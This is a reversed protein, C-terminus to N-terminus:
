FDYNPKQREILIDKDPEFKVAYGKEYPHHTSIMKWLTGAASCKLVADLLNNIISSRNYYDYRAAIDDIKRLTEPNVRLSILKLKEM